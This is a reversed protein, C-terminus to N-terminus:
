GGSDRSRLLKAVADFGRQEAVVIANGQKGTALPDAGHALLLEATELARDEDAPLYFLLSGNADTLKALEHDAALLAGLREVNGMRALSKPSASLTGLLEIMRPREYFIAWTLPTGNFYTELPDIEAGREILLKGVRVSDHQAAAHLPRFSTHSRVNPSTGLDLLRTAVDLLDREAARTLATADRLYEPHARVSASLADLDSRMCAALFEDRADLPAPEAGARELLDAVRTFGLSVAEAHVKRKTYFHVTNPDAGRALLWTTREVADRSVANGLLYNLMSSRPWRESGATWKATENLQASREYLFDLWFTDDGELSTNYLAQPEYPDAGHEILLAALAPGAAHRPQSMEGEGIAGALASFLDEDDALMQRASAGSTLLRRAVEVANAGAEETPLRGYCVYLLPEWQQPGGKEHVRAPRERLQREVEAVDGSVAAAHISQRALEPHRALIRAAYRRREATDVYTRDWTSTAPRRGYHICSHELFAALLKDRSGDDLAIAALETKLTAWSAVGHERALAHQVDRLAPTARADPYATRLRDLAAADGARVAKLWRKAEKRLVELSSKATLKRNM